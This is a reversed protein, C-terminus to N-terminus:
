PHQQEFVNRRKRWRRRWRRWRRRRRRPWRWIRRHRGV